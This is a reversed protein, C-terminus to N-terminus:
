SIGRVKIREGPPSSSLPTAVRPHLFAPWPTHQWRKIIKISTKYCPYPMAIM